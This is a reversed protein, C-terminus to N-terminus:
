VIYTKHPHAMCTFPNVLLFFFRDLNKGMKELKRIKIPRKLVGFKRVVPSSSDLIYVTFSVMLYDEVRGTFGCIENDNQRFVLWLSACGRALIESIENMIERQRWSLDFRGFGRQTDLCTKGWIIDSRVMNGWWFCTRMITLYTNTM